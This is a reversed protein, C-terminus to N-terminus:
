NAFAASMAKDAAVKAAYAAAVHPVAQQRASTVTWRTASPGFATRVAASYAEDAALATRYADHAANVM